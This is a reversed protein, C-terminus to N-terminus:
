RAPTLTGLRRQEGDPKCDETLSACGVEGERECVSSSGNQNGNEKKKKQVIPQSCLRSDAGHSVRAALAGTRISPKCLASIELSVGCDNMCTATALTAASRLQM